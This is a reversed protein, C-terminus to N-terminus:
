MTARNKCYKTLSQLFEPGFNKASFAFPLLAKVNTTWKGTIQVDMSDGASTRKVYSILIVEPNYECGRLLEGQLHLELLHQRDRYMIHPMSPLGDHKDFEECAILVHSLFPDVNRQAQRAADRIAYIAHFDCTLDRTGYYVAKETFLAAHYKRNAFLSPPSYPDYTIRDCITVMDQVIQNDNPTVTCIAFENNLQARLTSVIAVNSDRGGCIIEFDPGFTDLLIDRCNGCCTPLFGRTEGAFALLAPTVPDRGCQSALIAVATEECHLAQCLGYEINGAAYPMSGTKTM